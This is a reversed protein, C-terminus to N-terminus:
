KLRRRRKERGSHSHSSIWFRSLSDDQVSRMHRRSHSSAGICALLTAGETHSSLMAHSICALLTAGETLIRPSCQMRYAHSSLQVRRTPTGRHARWALHRSSRHTLLRLELPSTRTRISSRAQLGKTTERRDPDKDSAKRRTKASNSLPPGGTKHAVITAM